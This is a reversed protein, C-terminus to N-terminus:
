TNYKWLITVLTFVISASIKPKIKSGNDYTVGRTQHRYTIASVGPLFNFLCSLTPKATVVQEM